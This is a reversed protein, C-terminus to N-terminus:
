SGPITVLVGSVELKTGTVTAGVVRLNDGYLIGDVVRINDGLLEGGWLQVSDAGSSIVVEKTDTVNGSIVVSDQTESTVNGSIVVSDQTAESRQGSIVVSDQTGGTRQGSIVVSDTSMINGSIVVSDTVQVEGTIVVDTPVGNILLGSASISSGVVDGSTVPLVNGIAVSVPEGSVESGTQARVTPTALGAVLISVAM